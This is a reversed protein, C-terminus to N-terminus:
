IWKSVNARLAASQYIREVFLPRISYRIETQLVYRNVNFARIGGLM